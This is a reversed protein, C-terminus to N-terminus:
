VWTNCFSKFNYTSSLAGIFVRKLNQRSLKPKLEHMMLSKLIRSHIPNTIYRNARDGDNYTICLTNWKDTNTLVHDVIGMHYAM